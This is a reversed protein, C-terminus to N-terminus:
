KIFLVFLCQCMDILCCSFGTGKGVNEFCTYIFPFIQGLRWYDSFDGRYLCLLFEKIERWQVKGFNRYNILFLYRVIKRHRNTKALRKLSSLISCLKMMTIQNTRSICHLLFMLFFHYSFYFFYALILQTLLISDLPILFLSPEIVVYCTAIVKM